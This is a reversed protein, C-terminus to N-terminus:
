SFTISLSQFTSYDIFVWKSLLNLRTIVPIKAPLDEYFHSTTFTGDSIVNKKKKNLLLIERLRWNPLLWYVRVCLASPTNNSHSYCCCWPNTTKCKAVFNYEAKTNTIRKPTPIHLSWTTSMKISVSINGDYFTVHKPNTLVSSFAEM